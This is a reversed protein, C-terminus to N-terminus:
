GSYGDTVPYSEWSRSHSQSVGPQGYSAQSNHTGHHASSSMGYPSTLSQLSGRSDYVAPLTSIRLGSTPVPSSTKIIPSMNRGSAGYAAWASPGSSLPRPSALSDAHHHSASMYGTGPATDATTSSSASGPTAPLVPYSSGVSVPALLHSSSPGPIINSSSASYKSVIKKLAQELDVWKFVKIDKEINRPKPLGFAMILRFFADSEGKAKSVTQPHFGELNRRIRNREEVAFKGPVPTILLHELLLITDVSTVFCERKEEWFICSITASHPPRESISVPKFQVTLVNGTQKKSFLVLRRRNQWEETTWNEAMSSLQGIIKLTAKTSQYVPYPGYGGNGGSGSSQSQLTSTRILQPTSSGSHQTAGLSSRTIGGHATQSLSIAPSRIPEMHSGFPGWGTGHPSRLVPPARTYHDTFSATRYAGLMSGNGQNYGSAFDSQTHAHSHGQVQVTSTAASVGPPFGYTNTASDNGLGHVLSPSGTNAQVQLSHHPPSPHRAPSRNRPSGSLDPPSTDASGGVGVGRGSVGGPADIYSFVATTSTKAIEEGSASEVLVTLPVNSLSPCSTSLFQPAKATITYTCIGNSDHSGKEIQTNCRHSGFLVSVFPPSATMTGVLDYQSTVKLSVKTDFSGANPHCSIVNISSAPQAGLYQGTTANNAAFAMQNMQSAANETHQTSFSQSSYPSYPSDAYGHMQPKYASMPLLGTPSDGRLGGGHQAAEEELRITLTEPSEIQEDVIITRHTHYGPQAFSPTDAPTGRYSM